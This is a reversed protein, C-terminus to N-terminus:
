YDDSMYKFVDPKEFSLKQVGKKHWSKYTPDAVYKRLAQCKGQIV